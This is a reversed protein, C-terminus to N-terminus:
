EDSKTKTQQQMKTLAEKRFAGVTKRKGRKTRSNSRTRQGRVPLNRSHRVGRYTGTVKLRQIDARVQRVLEGETPVAELKSAINKIDDNTLKGVKKKNEIKLENLIKKSRSWGIGKINTLAYDVNWEDKLDVGAIRPM